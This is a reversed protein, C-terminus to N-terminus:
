VACSSHQFRAHHPNQREFENKKSESGETSLAQTLQSRCHPVIPQHNKSISKGACAHANCSKSLGQSLWFRTFSFTKKRLRFFTPFKSFHVYTTFSHSILFLSLSWGTTNQRCRSFLSRRLCICGCPHIHHWLPSDSRSNGFRNICRPRMLNTLLTLQKDTVRM